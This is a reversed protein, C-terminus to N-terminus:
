GLFRKQDEVSMAPWRSSQRPIWIALSRPRSTSSVTPGPIIYHIFVERQVEPPLRGYVKQARHATPWHDALIIRELDTM